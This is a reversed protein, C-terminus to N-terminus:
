FFDQRLLALTKYVSFHGSLPDNHRMLLIEDRVVIDASVFVGSHRRLLGNLDIQWGKVKNASRKSRLAM